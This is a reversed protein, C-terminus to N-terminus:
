IMKANEPNKAKKKGVRSQIGVQWTHQNGACCSPENPFDLFGTEELIEAPLIGSSAHSVGGSKSIGDQGSNEKSQSGINPDSSTEWIVGGSWTTKFASNREDGRGWSALGKMWEDYKEKQRKRLM